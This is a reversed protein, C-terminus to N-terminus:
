KLECEVCFFFSFSFIEFSSVSYRHEQLKVWGKVSSCIAVFGRVVLSADIVRITVRVNPPTRSFLPPKKTILADNGHRSNNGYDAVMIATTPALAGEVM